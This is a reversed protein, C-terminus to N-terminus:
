VVWSSHMHISHVCMCVYICMYWLSIINAFSTCARTHARARAGTVYKFQIRVLLMREERMVATVRRSMNKLRSVCAIWMDAFPAREFMCILAKSHQPFKLHVYEYRMCHPSQLRASRSGELEDGRWKMKIKAKRLRAHFALSPRRQIQQM